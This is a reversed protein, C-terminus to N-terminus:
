VHYIYDTTPQGDITVIYPSGLVRDAAIIAFGNTGNTAEVDFSIQKSEERFDFNSITSNSQVSAQISNGDAMVVQHETTNLHMDQIMADKFSVANPITATAVSQDFAPEYELFSQASNATFAMTVAKDQAMITYTKTKSYFGRAFSCESTGQLVEVDDITVLTYEQQECHGIVLNNGDLTDALSEQVAIGNQELPGPRSEELIIMGAERTIPHRWAELGDPGIM